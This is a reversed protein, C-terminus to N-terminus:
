NLIKSKNIIMDKKLYLQTYTFQDSSKIWNFNKKYDLENNLKIQKM